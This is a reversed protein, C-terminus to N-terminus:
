FGRTQGRYPPEKQDRYEDIGPGKLTRLRWMGYIYSVTLVVITAPLGLLINFLLIEEFSSNIYLSLELGFRLVLFVLWFISVEVYAPSIDSRRFWELEWSRTIHSLYSAVPRKLIISIFTIVILVFTGILDPLFFNNSNNNILIMASAFVVFVFGALSYYLNEKKQLRIVLFAASCVVSVIVAFMLGLNGNIIYFIVPPLIVDISKGTLVQKLELLVEKVIRM